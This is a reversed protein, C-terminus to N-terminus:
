RAADPPMPWPTASPSPRLMRAPYRQFDYVDTPGHRLLRAAATLGGEVGGRAAWPMVIAVVVLGFLSAAMALGGWLRRLWRKRQKM